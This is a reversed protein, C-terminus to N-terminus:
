LSLHAKQKLAIITLQKETKEQKAPIPLGNSTTIQSRLPTESHQRNNGGGSHPLRRDFFASELSTLM